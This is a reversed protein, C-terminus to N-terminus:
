CWIEKEAMMRAAIADELKVFRGLEKTKCNVRISARWRNRIKDFIVGAVGSTNRKSISRNLHNQSRTVNRLNDRRNDLKNHNIHDVELHPPTSMILRHMLITKHKGGFTTPRRCAYGKSNLQWKWQSIFAWDAADIFCIQGTSLVISSKNESM